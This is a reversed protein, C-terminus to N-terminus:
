QYKFWILHSYGVSKSWLYWFKYVAGFTVWPAGVPHIQTRALVCLLFCPCLAGNRMHNKACTNALRAHGATKWLHKDECDSGMPNLHCGCRVFLLKIVLFGSCGLSSGWAPLFITCIRSNYTRRPFHDVKRSYLWIGALDLRIKIQPIVVSEVIFCM